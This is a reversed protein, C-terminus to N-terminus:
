SAASFDVIDITPFVPTGFRIRIDPMRRLRWWGWGLSGVVSAVICGIGLAGHVLVITEVPGRLTWAGLGACVVQVVGLLVAIETFIRQVRADAELVSPLAVVDRALKATVPRGALASGIFVMGLLASMIVPQWLYVYVSAVALSVVTRVCFVGTSLVVSAPVRQRAVVRGLAMGVRWVLVTTLAATPGAVRLGVWLLLMPILITEAILWGSRALMPAIAGVRVVQPGM